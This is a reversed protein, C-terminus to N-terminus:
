RIKLVHDRVCVTFLGFVPHRWCQIPTPMFVINLNKMKMNHVHTPYQFKRHQFIVRCRCSIDVFSTYRGMVVICARRWGWGDVGTILRTVHRCAPVRCRWNVAGLTRDQDAAAGVTFQLSDKITMCRLLVCVCDLASEREEKESVTCILRRKSSTM